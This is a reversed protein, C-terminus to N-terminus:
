NPLAGPDGVAATLATAYGCWALYPALLAAATRDGRRALLVMEAVIAADLAATVVLAERRRGAAFFLPTWSTNLALQGLHAGVLAPDPRRGIRWGVVGILTYLVSWAPGFVGAPPAWKPKDLRAYITPADRAALGGLGAAVLPPAAAFLLRTVTRM